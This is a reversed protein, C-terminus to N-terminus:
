SVERRDRARARTERLEATKPKEERKKAKEGERRAERSLDHRGAALSRGLNEDGSLGRM